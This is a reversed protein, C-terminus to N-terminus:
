VSRDPESLADAKEAGINVRPRTQNCHPPALSALTADRDADLPQPDQLAMEAAVDVFTHETGVGTTLEIVRISQAIKELQEIQGFHGSIESFPVVRSPVRQPGVQSATRAYAARLQESTM